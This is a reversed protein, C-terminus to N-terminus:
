IWIGYRVQFGMSRQITRAVLTSLSASWCIMYEFIFFSKKKELIRSINKTERVYLWSVKRYRWDFLVFTGCSAGFPYLKKKYEKNKKEGYEVWVICVTCPALTHTLGFTHRQAPSHIFVTKITVNFTSSPKRRTPLLMSYTYGVLKIKYCTLCVFPRTSHCQVPFLLLIILIKNKEIFKYNTNPLPGSSRNISTFSSCSKITCIDSLGVSNTLPYASVIRCVSLKDINRM